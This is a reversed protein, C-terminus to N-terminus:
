CAEVASASEEDHSADDSWSQAKAGSECDEDRGDEESAEDADSRAGERELREHVYISGVRNCDFSLMLDM